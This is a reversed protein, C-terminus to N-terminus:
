AARDLLGRDMAIVCAERASRAHLRAAARRLYIGVAPVSCDLQEGIDLHSLGACALQLCQREVPSLSGFPRAEKEEDDAEILPVVHHAYFTALLHLRALRHRDSPEPSVITLTLPEDDPMAISFTVSGDRDPTAHVADDSRTLVVPRGEADTAMCCHGIANEQALAAGFAEVLEGLYLMDPAMRLFARAADRATEDFGSHLLQSM